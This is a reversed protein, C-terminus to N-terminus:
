SLGVRLWAPSDLQFTRRHPRASKRQSQTPSLQSISRAQKLKKKYTYGPKRHCCGGNHSNLTRITMGVDHKQQRIVLTSSCQTTVSVRNDPRGVDICQGFGPHGEVPGEDCSSDTHRATGANESSLICPAMSDVAEILCKGGLLKPKGIRCHQPSGAISDAVNPLPVKEIRGCVTEIKQMTGTSRSTKRFHHGCCDGDSRDDPLHHM